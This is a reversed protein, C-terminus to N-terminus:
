KVYRVGDIFWCCRCGLRLKINDFGYCWWFENYFINGRDGIADFDLSCRTRWWFELEADRVSYHVSCCLSFVM